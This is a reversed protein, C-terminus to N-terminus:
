ALLNSRVTRECHCLPPLYLMWDPIIVGSPTVFHNIRLRVPFGQGSLGIVQQPSEKGDAAAYGPRAQARGQAQQSFGRVKGEGFDGGARDAVVPDNGILPVHAVGVDRIGFAAAHNIKLGVVDVEDIVADGKIPHQGEVFEGLVQVSKGVQWRWERDCSRNCGSM